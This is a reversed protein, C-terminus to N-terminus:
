RTIVQIVPYPANQGWMMQAESHDLYRLEKVSFMTINRAEGMYRNDNVYIANAHWRPRLRQVAEEVSAFDPHEALEQETIVNPRGSSTGDTSGDGAAGRTACGQVLFMLTLVIMLKRIM